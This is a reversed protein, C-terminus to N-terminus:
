GEKNRLNEISAMVGAGAKPMSIHKLVMPVSILIPLITLLILGGSLLSILSLFGLLIGTSMGTKHIIFYAVGALALAVFFQWFMLSVLVGYTTLAGKGGKFHLFVSWNHGVVVALGVILVASLPLGLRQALLVAMAGKTLDMLGVIFSGALGVRRRVAAAGLRGDGAERMDIGKLLRGVIYASPISGLLYAIAIVLLVLAVDGAM